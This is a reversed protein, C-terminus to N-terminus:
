PSSNLTRYICVNKRNGVAKLFKKLYPRIYGLSVELESHQWTKCVVTTRLRHTAVRKPPLDFLGKV